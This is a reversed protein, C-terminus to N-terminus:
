TNIDSYFHVPSNSSLCLLISAICECARVYIVDARVSPSREVPLVKFDDLM